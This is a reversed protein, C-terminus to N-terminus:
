GFRCCLAATPGSRQNSLGQRMELRLAADKLSPNGCLTRVRDTGIAPSHM